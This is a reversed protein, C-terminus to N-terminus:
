STASRNPLTASRWRRIRQGATQPGAVAGPSREGAAGPPDGMQYGNLQAIATQADAAAKEVFCSGRPSGTERDNILQVSEVSGHREFLARIDDATASLRLNGVCITTM